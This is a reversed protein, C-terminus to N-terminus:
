VELFAYHMYLNCPDHRFNLICVYFMLHAMSAQMVLLSESEVGLLDIMPKKQHLKLKLSSSM